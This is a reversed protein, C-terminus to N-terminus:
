DPVFWHILWNEWQYEQQFIRYNIEQVAQKIAESTSNESKRIYAATYSVANYYNYDPQLDINVQWAKLLM